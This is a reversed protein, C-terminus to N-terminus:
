KKKMNTSNYESNFIEFLQFYAAVQHKCVPGLDYSCDCQSYVIEGEDDIKIVVEYDESGRIQFIYENDGQNCIEIINGENYYDYGRDLITKNTHKQFNNINM